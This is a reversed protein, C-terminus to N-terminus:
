QARRELWQAVCAVKHDHLNSLTTAKIVCTYPLLPEKYTNLNEQKNLNTPKDEDFCCVMFYVMFIFSKM